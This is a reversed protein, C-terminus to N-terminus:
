KMKFVIWKFFLIVYPNNTNILTQFTKQKFGQESLLNIPSTIEFQKRLLRLEEIKKSLSMKSRAIVDICGLYSSERIKRILTKQQEYIGTESVLQTFVSLRKLAIFEYNLPLVSSLTQRELTYQMYIYPTDDCTVISHAKRLCECAFIFDEHISINELFRIDNSCILNKKIIMMWTHGFVETNLLYSLIELYPILDSNLNKLKLTSLVQGKSNSICAGYFLMDKGKLSLIIRELYWDKVWDDSDVFVIYDGVAQEIGINRASSVGGNKKHICKVRIDKQVYLDCIDSSTDSSGDDVLILEFNQYTQRLLSDICRSLYKEVNYVPVIISIKPTFLM